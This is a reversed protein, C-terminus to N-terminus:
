GYYEIIDNNQSNTIFTFFLRHAKRLKVAINVNTRLKKWKWFAM